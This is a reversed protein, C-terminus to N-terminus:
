SCLGSSGTMGATFKQTRMGCQDDWRDEVARRSHALRPRHASLVILWGQCGDAVTAKIIVKGHRRRRQSHVDGDSARDVGGHAGTM